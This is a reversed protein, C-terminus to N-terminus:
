ISPVPRWVTEFMAPASCVRTFAQELVGGNWRLAPTPSEIFTASPLVMTVRENCKCGASTQCEPRTCIVNPDPM